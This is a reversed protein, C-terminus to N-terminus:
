ALPQFVTRKRWDRGCCGFSAGRVAYHCELGDWDTRSKTSSAFM